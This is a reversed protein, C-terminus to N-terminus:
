LIVPNKTNEQRGMKKILNTPWSQSKCEIYQIDPGAASLWKIKNNTIVVYAQIQAQVQMKHIKYM